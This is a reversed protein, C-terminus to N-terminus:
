KVGARKVLHPHLYKLTLTAEKNLRSLGREKEERAWFDKEEHLCQVFGGRKRSNPTEITVLQCNETHHLVSDRSALINGYYSSM